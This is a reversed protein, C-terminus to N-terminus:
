ARATCSSGFLWSACLTCVCVDQSSSPPPLLPAYGHMLGTDWGGRYKWGSSHTIAGYGQFKDQVINGEYVDGNVFTYRGLGHAFGDLWEGEYKDGNYWVCTGLGSFVGREWHGDYVRGDAWVQWAHLIHTQCAREDTPLCVRVRRHRHPACSTEPATRILYKAEISVPMCVHM